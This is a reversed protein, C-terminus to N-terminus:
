SKPPLDDELPERTIKEGPRYALVLVAVAVAALALVAFQFLVFERVHQSNMGLGALIAIIAAWIAWYIPRGIFIRSNKM